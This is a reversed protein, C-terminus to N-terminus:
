GGWLHKCNIQDTPATGKQTVCKKEGHPFPQVNVPTASRPMLVKDYEQFSSTVFVHNVNPPEWRLVLDSSKKLSLQLYADLLM